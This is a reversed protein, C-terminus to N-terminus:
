WQWGKAGEAMLKDIAAKIGDIDFCKDIIAEKIEAVRQNTAIFGYGEIVQKIRTREALTAM